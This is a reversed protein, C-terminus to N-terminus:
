DQDFDCMKEGMKQHFYKKLIMVDIRSLNLYKAVSTSLIESYTITVAVDARQEFCFDTDSFSIKSRPVSGLILEEM